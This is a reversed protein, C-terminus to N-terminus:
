WMLADKVCGGEGEDLRNRTFQKKEKWIGYEKSLQKGGDTGDRTQMLHLQVMCPFLSNPGGVQM